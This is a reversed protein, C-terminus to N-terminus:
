MITRKEIGDLISDLNMTLDSPRSKYDFVNKVVKSQRDIITTTDEIFLGTEWKSYEKRQFIVAKIVM